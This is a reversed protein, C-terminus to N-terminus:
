TVAVPAPHDKRSAALQELQSHTAQSRAVVDRFSPADLRLLQAATVARVTANRPEDNLLGMEGFTQGAELVALHEEVGDGNIRVVELRGSVIV